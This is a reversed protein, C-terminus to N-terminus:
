VPASLATRFYNLTESDVCYIYAGKMGRTMLTKYTNRIIRDVREQTGEPDVEMMKKWGRISRDKNSRAKPVTILKGDRAILDPGIIVGIYDLELGQCTHICGVEEISNPAMIWLSGDRDLNWRKAYGHEPIVVDFQDPNKKSVWDWCYGAVVRSKNNVANREAILQHFENPSGVVRFDFENPELVTNATEHIGLINDLWAM